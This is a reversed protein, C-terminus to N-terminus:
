CGTDVDAKLFARELFTNLAHLWGTPDASEARDPPPNPSQKPDTGDSDDSYGM